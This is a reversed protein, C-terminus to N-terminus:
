VLAKLQKDILEKIKEYFSVAYPETNQYNLVCKLIVAAESPKLNLNFFLKDSEIRSRLTYYLSNIIDLSIIADIFNEKADKYFLRVSFSQLENQLIELQPRELKNLSVKKM